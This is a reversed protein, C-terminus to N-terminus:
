LTKTFVLADYGSRYYRPVVRERQYGARMFLDIAGLNAEGTELRMTTAGRAAANREAARLLKRGVGHGRVRPVVAIAYLHADEARVGIVAFGVARGDREAILTLAGRASVLDLTNATADGGSYESFAEDAIELVFAADTPAFARIVVARPQM